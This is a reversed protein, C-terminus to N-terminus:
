RNGKGRIRLIGKYTLASAWLHLLVVLILDVGRTPILFLGAQFVLIMAAWYLVYIGYFGVSRHLQTATGKLTEGPALRREQYIANLKVFLLFGITFILYERWAEDLPVLRSLVDRDVFYWVIGLLLGLPIIVLYLRVYRAITQMRGPKQSPRAKM